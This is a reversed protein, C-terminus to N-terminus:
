FHKSLKVGYTRGAAPFGIDVSLATAERPEFEQYYKEDFLNNAWLTFTIDSSFDFIVRTNVLNISEQQDDNTFEWELDGRSEFDVRAKVGGWNFSNSYQGFMGYSWGYILPFANGISSTGAPLGTLTPDFNTAESNLETNLVGGTLGVEFSDNLSAYVEIEAGLVEAKEFNLITQVGSVFIFDQRNKFDSQFIAGNFTLKGDNWNSKFGLETTTVEEAEYEASILSSANFGGSRFGKGWSGYINVSDSPRYSISLKPQVMSFSRGRRANSILDVQKREEKDYRIGVTATLKDILEFGANAFVAWAFNDELNSLINFPVDAVAGFDADNISIDGAIFNPDNYLGINELAGFVLTNVTRDNDLVYLGVQANFTDLDDYSLRLEESWAEVFRDQAVRLAPFAVFDLDHGEGYSEETDTYASISTLVFDGFEYDFKLAYEQLTRDDSADFDVTVPFFTQAADDVAFGNEDIAAAFYSLGATLDSYSARFDVMLAESPYAVVRLRANRDNAFDAFNNTTENKIIGDFNSGSVSLRAFVKNEIIPGSLVGRLSVQGGNGAGIEAMGEFKDSPAKTTINIAGASANRGFLAGQPGKLFEIQQVDFLEQSMADTSSQQVGDIVIAVPAEGNRYQSVGRVSILVTGPNQTDVLSINPLRNTIDELDSIGTAEIDDSTFVSIQESIDILSENRKRATVTIVEAAGKSLKLKEDSVTPQSPSTVESQATAIGAISITSLFIGGLLLNNM